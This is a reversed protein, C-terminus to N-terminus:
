HLGSRTKLIEHQLDVSSSQPFFEKLSGEWSFGPKIKRGRKKGQKELLFLAFDSVEEQLEAPLQDIVHHINQM